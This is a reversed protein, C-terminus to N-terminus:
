QVKAIISDLATRYRPIRQDQLEAQQMSACRGIQVASVKMPVTLNEREAKVRVLVM